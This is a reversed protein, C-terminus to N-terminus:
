CGPRSRRRRGDSRSADGWVVTRDERLKLTIKAPGAVAIEVLQRACRRRCPPSCRSPAVPRRRGRRRPPWGCWRCTRRAAPRADQFVVGFRDVVLSGGARRCSRRPRGSSSRSADAGRGTAPSRRGSRRGAARRGAGRVATWTSAPWRCEPAAGGGGRAGRRRAGPRHRGGARRPRRLPQHRVGGLRAARCRSCPWARGGLAAGRAPAAPPRPAHVPAGVVARTPARASWRGAGRRGSQRRGDVEGGARAASPGATRGARGASCRGRRRGARRRRGDPVGGARTRRPVEIPSAARSCSTM